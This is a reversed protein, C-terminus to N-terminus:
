WVIEILDRPDVNQGLRKDYVNLHTHYGCDRGACLNGNWDLTYGNNWEKGVVEGIEVRQGESVTYNGHLMLVQYVENEIILTTNNYQDVFLASVEGSIPAHLAAGKGGSIDIAYHGYSMGHPGQTLVAREYPSRIAAAGGDPAEEEEDTPEKKAEKAGTVPMQKADKEKQASDLFVNGSKLAGALLDSRSGSDGALARDSTGSSLLAMGLFVFWLMGLVASPSIRIM